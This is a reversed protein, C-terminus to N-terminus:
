NRTSPRDRPPVSARTDVLAGVDAGHEIVVVRCRARRAVALRLVLKAGVARVLVLDLALVHDCERAVVRQPALREEEAGGEEALEAPEELAALM